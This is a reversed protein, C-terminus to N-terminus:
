DILTYKVKIKDYIYIYIYIYLYEEQTAWFFRLLLFNLFLGLYVSEYEYENNSM